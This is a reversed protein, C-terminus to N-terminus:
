EALRLNLASEQEHLEQSRRDYALQTRADISRVFAAYAAQEQASLNQRFHELQSASVQRQEASQDAYTQAISGAIENPASDAASQASPLAAIADDERKALAGAERGSFAQVQKSST